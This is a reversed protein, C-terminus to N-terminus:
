STDLWQRNIIPSQLNFVNAISSQRNSHADRGDIQLRCDAIRSDDITLGWDVIKYAEAAADSPAPTVRTPPTTDRAAVRPRRPASLPLRQM